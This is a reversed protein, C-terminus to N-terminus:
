TTKLKDDHEIMVWNGYSDSWRSIVVTEDASAMIPTGGPAGIDIAGHADEWAGTIPNWRGGFASTIWDTGHESPLPWAFGDKGINPSLGFGYLLEKWMSANNDSLLEKLLNNQEENFHYDAAM